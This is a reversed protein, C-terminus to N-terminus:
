DWIHIFHRCHSRCGLRNIYEGIGGFSKHVIMIPDNKFIILPDKGFFGHRRNCFRDSGTSRGTVHLGLAHVSNATSRRLRYANYLAELHDNLPGKKILFLTERINQM